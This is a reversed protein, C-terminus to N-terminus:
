QNAESCFFTTVKLTVRALQPVYRGVGNNILANKNIFTNKLM